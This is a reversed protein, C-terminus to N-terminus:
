WIRFYGGVVTFSEPHGAILFLGTDDPFFTQFLFWVVVDQNLGDLAKSAVSAGSASSDTQQGAPALGAPRSYWWEARVVGPVYSRGVGLQSPRVIGCARGICARTVKRFVPRAVVM